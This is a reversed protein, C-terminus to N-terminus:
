VYGGSTFGGLFSISMEGRSEIFCCEGSQAVDLGLAKRLTARRLATGLKDYWLM